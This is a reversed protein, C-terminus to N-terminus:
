ARSLGGVLVYMHAKRPGFTPTPVYAHLLAARLNEFDSFRHVTWATAVGLAPDSRTAMVPYAHHPKGAPIADRFADHCRMLAHALTTSVPAFAGPATARPSLPQQKIQAQAQAAAANAEAPTTPVISAGTGDIREAAEVAVACVTDTRAEEQACVWHEKSVYFLRAATPALVTKETESSSVVTTTANHTVRVIPKIPRKNSNASLATLV